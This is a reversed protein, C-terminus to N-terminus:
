HSCNCINPNINSSAPQVIALASPNSPLPPVADFVGDDDHEVVVGDDDSAIPMMDAKEKQQQQKRRKMGCVRGM